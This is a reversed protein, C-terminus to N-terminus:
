SLLEEGCRKTVAMLEELKALAAGSDISKEALKIGESIDKAMGGVVLGAAANLVVIDRKAGKAGKLLALTIEANEAPTGGIYDSPAAKHFGYDAPNIEYTKVEGDRVETVQTPVAASIEDMGDQSCVVMARKVGLGVM